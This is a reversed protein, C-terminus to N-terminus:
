MSYPLWIVCAKLVTRMLYLSELAVQNSHKITEGKRREKELEFPSSGADVATSGGQVGPGEVSGGVDVIDGGVDVVIGDDDRGTSCGLGDAEGTVHEDELQCRCYWNGPRGEARSVFILLPFSRFSGSREAIKSTM